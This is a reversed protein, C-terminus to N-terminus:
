GRLDFHNKIKYNIQRKLLVLIFLSGIAVVANGADAPPIPRVCSIRPRIAPSRPQRGVTAIFLADCDVM